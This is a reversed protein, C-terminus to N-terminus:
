QAKLKKFIKIKLTDRKELDIIRMFDKLLKKIEFQDLKSVNV